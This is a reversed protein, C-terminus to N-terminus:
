DHAAEPRTTSAIEVLRDIGYGDCRRVIDAFRRLASALGPSAGTAAHGALESVRRVAASLLMAHGGVNLVPLLSTATAILQDALFPDRRVIAPIEGRHREYEQM